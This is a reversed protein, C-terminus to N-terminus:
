FGKVIKHTQKDTYSEHGIYKKKSLPVECLNVAKTMYKEVMQLFSDNMKCDSGFNRQGLNYIFKKLM